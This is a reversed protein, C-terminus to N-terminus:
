IQCIQILDAQYDGNKPEGQKYYKELAERARRIQLRKEIGLKEKPALGLSLLSSVRKQVSVDASKITLWDRHLSATAAQASDVGETSGLKGVELDLDRIYM